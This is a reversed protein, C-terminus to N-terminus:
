SDTELRSIRDPAVGSVIAEEVDAATRDAGALAIAILAARKGPELSGFADACGLAVAGGLTASRILARAAV